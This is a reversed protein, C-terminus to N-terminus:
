HSSANSMPAKKYKSAAPFIMRILERASVGVAVARLSSPASAVEAADGHEAWARM